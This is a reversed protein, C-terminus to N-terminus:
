NSAFDDHHLKATPEITRTDWARNAGIVNCALLLPKVSTAAFASVYAAKTIVGPSM